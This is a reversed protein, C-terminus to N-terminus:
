GCLSVPVSRSEFRGLVPDYAITMFLVQDVGRRVLHWWGSAVDEQNIAVSVAAVELSRSIDILEGAGQVPVEEKGRTIYLIMGRKM